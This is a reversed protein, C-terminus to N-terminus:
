EISQIRMVSKKKTGPRPTFEWLGNAGNQADWGDASLVGRERWVLIPGSEKVQLILDQRGYDMVQVCSPSLFKDKRGVVAWRKQIPLLLFLADDFHELAYGYPRDLKQASGKKWDYLIFGEGTIEDTSSEGQMMADREGYCESGIVGSVPVEPDTLNYAIVAVADNELPAIVTYPRAEAFPDMILCERLPTAPAYPRIIEGDEFCLPLVNKFDFDAPADSLYVPGGSVAKSRAMMSGAVEDNSHFMDHDGWVTQGLWPINGYSNHLHKKARALDNLKYDESCRTVASLRTNFVSVVGHAMCNILGDLQRACVGELAQANNATCEVPNSTREYMSVMATQNDMKVFDFGAKRKESIMRDYFAVSSLFDKGPLLAGNGIKQLHGNLIGLSNDADVGAWYGCFNLWLGMWKIKKESRRSLLPTWGNPFKKSDVEFDTLREDRHRIHGDDILVYRIPLRSTEIRDVAELLIKENIDRQYQEWSCWGLYKFIEPYVKRSRMRSSHGIADCALAQEWVRRCAAYPDPDHAWACLPVDGEVKETGFTGFALVLKGDESALWSMTRPGAIPLIAITEGSDLKALLFIGGKKLQNFDLIKLPQMRNWGWFAEKKEWKSQFDYKQFAAYYVGSVFGPLELYYKGLVGEGDPVGAYQRLIKIESKSSLDLTKHKM